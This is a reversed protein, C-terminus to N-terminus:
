KSETGEKLKSPKSENKPDLILRNAVTSKRIKPPRTLTTIKLELSGIGKKKKEMGLAYPLEQALSPIQAVAVVYAM